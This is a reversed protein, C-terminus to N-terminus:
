LVGGAAEPPARVAGDAPAHMSEQGVRAIMMGQAYELVFQAVVTAAFYASLRAVGAYDGIRIYDDIAVKVIYPGLIQLGAMILSVLSSFAILRWYPIM